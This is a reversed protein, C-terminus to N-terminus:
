VQKFFCFVERRTTLLRPEPPPPTLPPPIVSHSAAHPPSFLLSFRSIIKLHSLGFLSGTKLSLTSARSPTLCKNEHKGPALWLLLWNVTCILPLRALVQTKLSHSELHSSGLNRSFWRTGKTPLHCPGQELPTERPTGELDKQSM